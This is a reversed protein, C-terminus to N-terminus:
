AEVVAIKGNAIQFDLWGTRVAVKQEGTFVTNNTPDVLPGGFVAVFKEEKAKVEAVKVEATDAKPM